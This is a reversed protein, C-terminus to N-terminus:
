QDDEDSYRQACIHLLPIVPGLWIYLKPPKQYITVVFGECFHHWKIKGVTNHSFIRKGSGQWCQKNYQLFRHWNILM